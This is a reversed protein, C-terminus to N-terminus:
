TAGMGAQGSVTTSSARHAGRVLSWPMCLHADTAASKRCSPDHPRARRPKALTARRSDSTAQDARRAECRPLRAAAIGGEFEDPAEGDKPTPVDYRLRVTRQSNVGDNAYRDVAM